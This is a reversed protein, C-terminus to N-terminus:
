AQILISIIRIVFLRLFSDMIAVIITLISYYIEFIIVVRWFMYLLLPITIIIFLPNLNFNIIFYTM